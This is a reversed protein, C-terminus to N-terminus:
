ESEVAIGLHTLEQQTGGPTTGYVCDSCGCVAARNAHLYSLCSAHVVRNGGSLCRHDRFSPSVRKLIDAVLTYDCAFARPVIDRSMLINRVAGEQLGLTALLGGGAQLCWGNDPHVEHRCHLDALLRTRKCQASEVGVRGMESDEETTLVWLGPLRDRSDNM